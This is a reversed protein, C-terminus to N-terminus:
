LSGESDTCIRTVLHSLAVFPFVCAVPSLPSLSSSISVLGAHAGHGRIDTAQLGQFSEDPIIFRHDQVLFNAHCAYEPRQKRNETQKPKTKKPVKREIKFSVFSANCQLQMFSSSFIRPLCIWPLETTTTATPKNSRFAVAVINVLVSLNRSWREIQCRLPRLHPGTRRSPFNM